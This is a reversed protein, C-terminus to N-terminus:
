EKTTIPILLNILGQNGGGIALGLANRGYNDKINPDAGAKLLANALTMQMNYQWAGRFDAVLILPTSGEGNGQNVDANNKILFLVVNAMHGYHSSEMVARTLPTNGKEDAANVDAGAKVLEAVVEPRQTHIASLLPTTVIPKTMWGGKTISQNVDAGNKILYQIIKLNPGSLNDIAAALPTSQDTLSNGVMCNIDAGNDLATKILNINNQYIGNILLRDMDSAAYGNCSSVSILCILLVLIKMCHKIM